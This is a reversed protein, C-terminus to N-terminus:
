PMGGGMPMGGPQTLFPVSGPAVAIWVGLGVLALAFLTALREGVPLVKEAFIGAAVIVMWTLSMVGVAFLV